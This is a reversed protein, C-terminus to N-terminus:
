NLKLAKKLAPEDFGLIIQGDVEVVPVGRQGSKEIAEKAADVDEAVNKETYTVKHEKLFEKTKICWPCSPTTYITVKAM